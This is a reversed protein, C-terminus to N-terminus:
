AQRPRHGRIMMIGAFLGGFCLCIIITSHLNRDIPIRVSWILSAAAFCAVVAGALRLPWAGADMRFQLLTLLVLGLMILDFNITEM